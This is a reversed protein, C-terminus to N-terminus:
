IDKYELTMIHNYLNLDLEESNMSNLLSLCLIM